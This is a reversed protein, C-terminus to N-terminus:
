ARVKVMIPLSRPQGGHCSGLKVLQYPRTPGQEETAGFFYGRFDLAVALRQAAHGPDGELHVVGVQRV